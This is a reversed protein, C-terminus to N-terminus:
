EIDINVKSLCERLEPLFSKDGSSETDKMGSHLKDFVLSVSARLERIAKMAKQLQDISLDSAMVSSFQTSVQRM